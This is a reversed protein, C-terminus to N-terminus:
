SELIYINCNELVDDLKAVDKGGATAMHPKGGGGGGLQRGLIRVINGAKIGQKVLDDSVVCLVQPTEKIVTGFIAIGSKMKERVKDGLVKLQDMNEVQVRNVFLPYDKIIQEEKFYKDIYM